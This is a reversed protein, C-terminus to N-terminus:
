KGAADRTHELTSVLSERPLKQVFPNIAWALVQPVDRSLSVTRCEALVGGDVAELSWYANFRWLFGHGEGPPLEKERETGANQVESIDHAYARCTWKGPAIEQYYARQKVDLVVTLLPDRWELRWYGAVDNGDRRLLRSRVVGPYVRAHQDFGQLVDLVRQMSVNPIFVAGVWDHILGNSVQMPNPTTGPEVVVEGRLVRREDIAPFPREEVRKAYRDFQETTSADLKTM